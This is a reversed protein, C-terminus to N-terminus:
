KMLDIESQLVRIEDDKERRLKDLAMKHESHLGEIEREHERKLNFLAQEMDGSLKSKLREIESQYYAEKETSTKKLNELEKQL